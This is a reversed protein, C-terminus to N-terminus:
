TRTYEKLALAMRIYVRAGVGSTTGYIARCVDSITIEDNAWAIALEIEENTVAKPQSFKPPPVFSKAKELLTM